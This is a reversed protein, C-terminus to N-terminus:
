KQPSYDPTSMEDDGIYTAYDDQVATWATELDGPDDFYDIDVSGDQAEAAIFGVQAQLFTAEAVNLPQQPNAEQVLINLPTEGEALQVVARWGFGPEALEEESGNTQLFNWVLSDVLTNFKGPGYPRIEDM